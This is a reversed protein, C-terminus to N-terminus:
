DKQKLRFRCLANGLEFVHEFLESMHSAGPIEALMNEAIHELVRFSDILEGVVVIIERKASMSREYIKLFKVLLKVLEETRGADRFDWSVDELVCKQLCPLFM